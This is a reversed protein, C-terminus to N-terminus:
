KYMREIKHLSNNCTKIGMFVSIKFENIIEFM